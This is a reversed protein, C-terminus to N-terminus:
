GTRRRGARRARGWVARGSIEDGGPQRRGVRGNARYGGGAESGMRRPIAVSSLAMGSSGCSLKLWSEAVRLSRTAAARGSTAPIRTRPRESREAVRHRLSTTTAESCASGSVSSASTIRAPPAVNAARSAPRSGPVLMATSRSSPPGGGAGSAAASGLGPMSTKASAASPAPSTATRRPATCETPGTQCLRAPPRISRRIPSSMLSSLRSSPPGTSSAAPPRMPM